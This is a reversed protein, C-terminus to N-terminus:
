YISSTGRDRRRAAYNRHGDGGRVNLSHTGGGGVTMDVLERLESRPYNSNATHAGDEPTFFTAGLGDSSAYFCSSNYSALAPQDVEVIGGNGDSFPTQLKWGTLNLVSGAPPLAAGGSSVCALALAALATARLMANTVPARARLLM